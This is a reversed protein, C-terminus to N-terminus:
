VPGTSDGYAGPPAKWPQSGKFGVKLHFDGFVSDYPTGDEILEPISRNRKITTGFEREYKIIEDVMWPYLAHASAWQDANGFICTFCSLRGWGRYYAPHPVINWRELSDWVMKETWELIPRHHDVIRGKKESHCRHQELMAYTKRNPSEQGREGTIVLTRSDNFREQNNIAISMVDIKLAASCWRTRLSASVQPFKMRTGLPGSKGGASGVTGDPNQWRVPATRQNDRLMERKFGGERWSFYLPVGFHEAFQICYGETEPWDMFPTSGPEGDILHHWLEIRERDAGEELLHLLCATSDKGGSFAVIIRDYSNYNM